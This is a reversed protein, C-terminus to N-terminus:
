PLVGHSAFLLLPLVVRYGVANWVLPLLCIYGHRQLYSETKMTYAQLRYEDRFDCVCPVNISTCDEAPNATALVKAPGVSFHM